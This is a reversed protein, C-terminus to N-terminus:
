HVAGQGYSAVRVLGQDATLEQHALFYADPNASVVQLAAPSEDHQALLTPATENPTLQQWAVLAVFSVSAALAAASAIGRRSPHHWRRPALVTPEDALRARVQARVECSSFGNARIADGILHYENWAEALSEDSKMAALLRASAQEDLEVDMMESVSQRM